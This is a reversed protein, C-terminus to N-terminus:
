WVKSFAGSIWQACRRFVKSKREREACHSNRHVDSIDQKAQHLASTVPPCCRLRLEGHAEHHHGPRAEGETRARAAERSNATVPM